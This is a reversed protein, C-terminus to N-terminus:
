PIFLWKVNDWGFKELLSEIVNHVFDAVMYKTCHEVDSIDKTLYVAKIEENVTAISFLMQPRGDFDVYVDIAYKEELPNEVNEGRLVVKRLHPTIGIKEREVEVDGGICLGECGERVAEAVLHL